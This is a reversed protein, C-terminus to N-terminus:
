RPVTFVHSYYLYDSDITRANTGASKLIGLGTGTEKGVGTLNVTVSAISIGDVFFTATIGNTEVRLKRWAGATTVISGLITRVGANMLTAEIVNGVGRFYLGNTAEASVNNTFGAWWIFINTADSLVPVRVMAECSTTGGGLLIPALSSRISATGTATNGTTLRLIGPHGVEAAINANGSGTGANTSTYITGTISNEFEAMFERGVSPSLLGSSASLALTRVENIADVLNSKALTTLAALSVVNGNVLTRLAKAEIGARVSFAQVLTDLSV